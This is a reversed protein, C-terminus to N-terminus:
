IIGGNKLERELSDIFVKITTIGTSSPLSDIYEKLATLIDKMKTISMREKSDPRMYICNDKEQLFKVLFPRATDTHTSRELLEVVGKESLYRSQGHRHSTRINVSYLKMMSSTLQSRSKGKNLGAAKQIDTLSYFYEGDITTRRISKNDILVHDSPYIRNIDVEM